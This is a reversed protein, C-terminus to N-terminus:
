SATSCNRGAPSTTICRWAKSASTTRLGRMMLSRLGDRDIMAIAAGLIRRDLRATGSGPEAAPMVSAAEGRGEPSDPDIRMVAM